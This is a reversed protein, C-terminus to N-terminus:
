RPLVEKWIPVPKQVNITQTPGVCYQGAPLANDRASETVQYFGPQNFSYSPNQAVSTGSGGGAGSPIFTWLWQKDSSQSDFLTRDTFKVLGDALPNKPSWTFQYPSNTNPYAHVPTKWSSSETWGSVIDYSNWVRVRAKYNANFVLYWQGSFYSRCNACAVKESDVEPSGFSGQNDIQVQYAGQPAGSPDSYTWNVTAAPGSICYNPQTVSVNSPDDPAPPIAANITMNCEAYGLVSDRLRVIESGEKSYKTSFDSGTGNSPDGDNANWTYGPRGGGASFKAVQGVSVTQNAPSCILASSNKGADKSVWFKGEVFILGEQKEVSFKSLFLFAGLLVLVIAVPKYM